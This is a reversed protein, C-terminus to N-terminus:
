LLSRIISVFSKVADLENSTILYKHALYSLEESGHENPDYRSYIDLLKVLAVYLTRKNEPM